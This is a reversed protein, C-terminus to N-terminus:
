RLPGLLRKKVQATVLPMTVILCLLGVWAAGGLKAVLPYGGLSAVLLFLGAIGLALPLYIMASRRAVHKEIQEHEM